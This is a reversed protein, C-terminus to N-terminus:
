QRADKRMHWQYIAKAAIEHAVENPHSDFSTITLTRADLGEYYPFLDLFDINGDSCVDALMKHIERFPYNDNLSFFLPFLVVSLRGGRGAIDGNMRRITDFSADLLGNDASYLRRYWEITRQTISSRRLVQRILSVSSLFGTDREAQFLMLENFGEFLAEFNKSRLPDNLVYIYYYDDVQAPVGIKQYILEVTAVDAGSAGLNLVQMASGNGAGVLHAFKQSFTDDEGVGVGYTFSDGLFAIRSTGPSKRGFPEGRLGFENRKYLIGYYHGRDIASKVFAAIGPISRASDDGFYPHTRVDIYTSRPNESYIDAHMDRNTIFSRGPLPKWIRYIRVVAEATALALVLGLVATLGYKTTTRM